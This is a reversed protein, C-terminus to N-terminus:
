PMWQCLKVGCVEGCGRGDSVTKNVFNLTQEVTKHSVTSQRLKDSDYVRLDASQASAASLSHSVNGEPEPAVAIRLKTTGKHARHRKDNGTSPRSQRRFEEIIRWRAERELRLKM